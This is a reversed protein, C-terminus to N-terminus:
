RKRPQCRRSGQRWQTHAGLTAGPGPITDFRQPSRYNGSADLAQLSSRSDGSARQSTAQGIARDLAAPILLYNEIEKRQHIHAVKLHKSLMELMGELQEQCFYDRDYIAAIILSSGLVDAIGSALTTVREWSGFGGSELPTIDVGASLESM